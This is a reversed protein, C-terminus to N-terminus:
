EKGGAIGELIIIVYIELFYLVM